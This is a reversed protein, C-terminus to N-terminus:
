PKHEAHAIHHLVLTKLHQQEEMPLHDGFRLVKQQTRIAVGGIVGKAEHDRYGLRRLDFAFVELIQDIEIKHSSTRFATKSTFRLSDRGILVSVERTAEGIVLIAPGIVCLAAVMSAVVAFIRDDMEQDPQFGSSAIWFIFGGFGILPLMSAFFRFPFTQRPIVIKLDNAETTVEAIGCSFQEPQKPLGDHQHRQRLSLGIKDTSFIVVRGSSSDHLPLRLRVALEEALNRSHDVLVREWISFSQDGSLSVYYVATRTSSTDGTGVKWQHGLAVQSFVSLKHQRTIRTVGLLSFQSRISDAQQDIVIRRRITSAALFVLGIPLVKFWEAGGRQQAPVIATVCIALGIMLALKLLCGAGLDIQLEHGRQKIFNQM